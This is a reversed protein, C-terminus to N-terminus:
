DSARTRAPDIGPASLDFNQTFVRDPDWHAKLARLRGLTPEPFAEVVGAPTHDSEFSLYMGDMREHVPRWAADLLARAPGAAVATVSFNQHRHAYATAEAPLDNIAGGASRIQVMDVSRVLDAIRRSTERDLHVALGTRTRALQQQGSHPAGTAVPVEPYPVLQAQAGVLGPLAAFPDLAASAATTDARAYVITAHVASGAIYLFASVERPAAELTLGWQELFGSLEPPLFTLSAHAVDPTPVADFEFATVIGFNAGAGRLAWFLEPDEQASVRHQTGDATVIEAAVLHDITLGHARGLLGLGGSTALGGVGVDGSDGSSLALGLPHLARAVEGWRAGPGIRVRRGHLHEVRNLRSLDVVTGGDNTAISSIGHGGSRIAIPAKQARAFALAEPVQRADRPQVVAAPSGTASYVHRVREYRDDGPRIVELTPSASTM